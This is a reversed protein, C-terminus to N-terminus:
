AADSVSAIITALGIHSLYESTRMLKEVEKAVAEAIAMERQARREATYALGENLGKNYAEDKDEKTFLQGNDIAHRLAANAICRVAISNTTLLPWGASTCLEEYTMGTVPYQRAPAPWTFNSFDRDKPEAEIRKAHPAYEVEDGVFVPKGDIFGLPTM